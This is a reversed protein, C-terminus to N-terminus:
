KFVFPVISLVLLVAMSINFIRVRKENAILKQLFVGGLVWIHSSAICALAYIFAIIVVQIFVYNGHTTFSTTATIAMIWAKPNVWQFLVIQMFSFPKNRKEKEKELSIDGKTNAIHWAMWLLYMTAVVKLVTYALPYKELVAGVGLGVAVVMIPFGLVIGLIHGLTRKYGFTLGSSLLMLNNPGPTFSTAVTFSVISLLM